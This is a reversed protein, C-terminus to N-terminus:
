KKVSEEYVSKMIRNRKKFSFKERAIELGKRGMRKRLSSDEILKRLNDYIGENLTKDLDKQILYKDQDNKFKNQDKYFKNKCIDILLGSENNKVIEPIAFHNTSVIPLGFAEAELLVFGFSDALTPMVFIDANPYFNKMLEEREIGKVWNINNNSVIKKVLLDKICPGDYRSDLSDFKSVITLEINDFKSQLREFAEILQKGGKRIFDGGIFMINIKERNSKSNIVDDKIERIAPYVVQCKELIEKEQINAYSGLSKLAINSGLIFKKFNTKLIRKKIIELRTKRSYYDGFITFPGLGTANYCHFIWNNNTICPFDFAEIIDHKESKFFKLHSELIQLKEPFIQSYKIGKPPFLSIEKMIGHFNTVGVDIM